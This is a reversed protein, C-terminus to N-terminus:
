EKVTVMSELKGTAVHGDGYTVKGDKEEVIVGDKYIYTRVVCKAFQAESIAIHVETFQGQHVGGEGFAGEIM